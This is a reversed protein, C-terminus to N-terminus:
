SDKLTQTINQERHCIRVEVGYKQRIHEALHQASYVSRHQGGTCGFAIMLSTFGRQLYREVHADALRYVSDLFTLIEGDDELFRIVPEDLGTLQKYPEYRGPNHTSRCDFVYGGGNGSEDEPIGKGYSFSFVRVVLPGTGDYKSFTAPGDKPHANYPNNDTTKYGDARSRAPQEIRAFQPLETLRQLLESLYPYPFSASQLNFASSQPSLLERLNQIAPPISELFHKKQEFYGRFGYAGLVQLTRFFVFLRLRRDFHERKPMEAFQQAAAYYEDILERRLRDPYRASAQWLFSALDYYFPGRRGGQFDIFYLSDGVMVNRAQFDRYLFSESPEATLDKALLRFDAELKLEHFDIETAKLFCYKFYNLDFLVSDVDFEAQPYCNSFDLEMAGRMQINPLERITRKLLEQEKLTYRGGAERGGRIADFLSISGLDTQLYRLLDDSKALIKPVPLQRKSFHETLYIFAHDEDRSTGIVGVVTQGNNDTLRYYTRNSGGGPIQQVNAPEAGKWQRYLDLLKQM